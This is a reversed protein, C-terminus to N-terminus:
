VPSIETRLRSKSNITRPTVAEFRVRKLYAALERAAPAGVRDQWEICRLAASTGKNRRGPMGRLLTNWKSLM